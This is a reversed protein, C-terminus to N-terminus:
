CGKPVQIEAGLPKPTHCTLPQPAKPALIARLCVVRPWLRCPNPPDEARMPLVWQTILIQSVDRFVWAWPIEAQNGSSM